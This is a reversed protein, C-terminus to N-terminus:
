DGPWCPAEHGEKLVCKRTVQCAGELSMLSVQLSGNYRESKPTMPRSMEKKEDFSGSSGLPYKLYDM